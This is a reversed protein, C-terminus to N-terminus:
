RFIEMSLNAVQNIWPRAPYGLCDNWLYKSSYTCNRSDVLWCGRQLINDDCVWFHRHDCNYDSNQYAIDKCCIYGQKPNFLTWKGLLIQLIVDHRIWIVRNGLIFYVM